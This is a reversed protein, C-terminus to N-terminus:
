GLTRRPITRPAEPVRLRAVRNLTPGFYDDDREDAFGTHLATRVRLGDVAEFDEAALGRQAAVMAEIASDARAFAACFADGITKFVHGGHEEIAARLIADHKRVAEQMAPRNRDWRVTSGEIDTFAFTVAGTPLPAARAM